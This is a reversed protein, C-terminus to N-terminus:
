LPRDARVALVLHGARHLGGRAATAAPALGLGVQALGCGVLKRRLAGLGVGLLLGGTSRVRMRTLGSANERPSVPSIMARKSRLPSRITPRCYRRSSRSM